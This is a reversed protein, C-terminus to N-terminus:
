LNYEENKLNKALFKTIKSFLEEPKFPKLVFDDLGSNKFKEDKAIHAHATMAVVPIDIKLDKKIIATAEYGDMVPMQIDMLVIDFSKQKIFDIAEVGNKAMTISINEWKRKLTKKAVVQNLLHDEVVLVEFKADPNLQDKAVEKDKRKVEKGKAVGFILDFFFSSGVGLESEVNIRGGQLGVLNKAISLGLGTGEYFRKKQKVRSFSEFITGLKDNAIGIGSDRVFFQLQVSNSEENLKKVEITVFGSDTFKVANGVLNLLIQNLRLKDGVLLNPIEDAIVLNLDINKEAARYKMVEVLNQMMDRLDFVEDYFEVKGNQIASIELIDNVIRLLVESSKKISSVLEAEENNLKMGSLLNSMGLIANMPTRMEHSVSALFNEKMETTKNALDREKRMKEIQHQETIDRIIMYYSSGDKSRITNATILCFRVEKSKHEISIPFDKVSETTKLKLLFERQKEKPYFLSHISELNNLEKRSYGFVKTTADNFDILKGDYDSIVIADRSKTFLNEYREHIKILDSNIKKPASVDKIFGEIIIDNDPSLILNASINLYKTTDKEKFQLEIEEAVEKREDIIKRYINKVFHFKCDPNDLDKFDVSNKEPNLGLIRYAQPSAVFMRANESYTWNGIHATEQTRNITDKLHLLKVFTNLTRIIAEKDFHKTLFFDLAGIKLAITKQDKDEEDFLAVFFLEPHESIRKQLGTLKRGGRINVNYFVLGSGLSSLVGELEKTNTVAQFTVHPLDIQKLYQAFKQVTSECSDAIM